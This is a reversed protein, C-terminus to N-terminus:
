DDMLWAIELYKLVGTLVQNSLRNPVDVSPNTIMLVKICWLLPFIRHQSRRYFLKWDGKIRLPYESPSDPDDIAKSWITGVRLYWVEVKRGQIGCRPSGIREGLPQIPMDYNTEGRLILCERMNRSHPWVALILHRDPALRSRSRWTSM